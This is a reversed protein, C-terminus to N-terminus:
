EVREGALFDRALYGLSIMLITDPQAASVAAKGMLSNLVAGLPNSQSVVAAQASAGYVMAVLLPPTLEVGTTDEFASKFGDAADRFGRKQTTSFGDQFDQSDLIVALDRM